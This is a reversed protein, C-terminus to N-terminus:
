ENNYVKDLVPFINNVSSKKVMQEINFLKTKIVGEDHRFDHIAENLVRLLGENDTFLYGSDEKLYSNMPLVDRTICIKSFSMAELLVLGLGESFSPFVFIDISDFFLKRDTVYGLYNIKIRKDVESIQTLYELYARDAYGGINLNIKETDLKNFSELLEEIGKNKNLRGLFGLSIEEKSSFSSNLNNQDVWYPIVVPSLNKNLNSVWERVSTSIAIIEDAQEWFKALSIMFRKKISNSINTSELYTDYKGHVSVIWRFTTIYKKMFYLMFDSRPQHSHIVEYKNKKIHTYLTVYASLNFMRPGNLRKIPVGLVGFEAELSVVSKNDPGIVVLDVTYNRIQQEKILDFLHTEAGGRNLTNIVHCIKM